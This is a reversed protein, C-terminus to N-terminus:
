AALKNFIEMMAASDAGAQCILAQRPMPDDANVDVGAFFIATPHKRLIQLATLIDNFQGSQEANDDSLKSVIQPRLKEWAAAFDAANLVAQLHSGEYQPGLNDGGRWGVYVIADTPVRDALPQALLPTTVLLAACIAHLLFRM